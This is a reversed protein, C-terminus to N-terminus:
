KSPTKKSIQQDDEGFQALGLEKPHNRIFLYPITIIVLLFGSFLAAMRWNIAVIIKTLVTSMLSGGIGSAMTVIGLILGQHRNFWSKIILVAGATFCAGFGIGFIARSIGLVVLSQARSMLVMGFGSTLLSVVAIKRYGFRQFLVGVVISSLFSVVSYPVTAVSFAGYRVNLDEIIPVTYIVFSNIIGGFIITELFIILAVLWHYYRRITSKIM